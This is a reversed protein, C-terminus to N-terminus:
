AKILSYVDQWLSGFGACSPTRPWDLSNTLIKKICRRNGDMIIIRSSLIIAEQIDHTVFLMTIKTEQWIKYITQQLIEKTQADLSGFPEDLLLMKSDSALARALAARQKMGGSLQHPFYDEYGNLNVSNILKMATERLADDKKNKANIKMPFIINQLVTKWPFLQDFDQFVMIRERGPGRIKEGDFYIHGSDPKEFGAILRLFTSKGCGSPGLICVFEGENVNLSINNLINVTEYSKTLNEIKLKAPTKEVIINM